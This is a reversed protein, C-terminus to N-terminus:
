RIRNGKRLTIFEAVADKLAENKVEADTSELEVLSAREKEGERQLHEVLAHRVGKVDSELYAVRLVVWVLLVVQPIGSSMTRLLLMELEM